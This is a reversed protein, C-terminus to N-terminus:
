RGLILTCHSSLIGGNGHVLAIGPSNPVQREKGENRLQTVAETVHLIGGNACSLMGGNTNAPLDGNISLYGREALLGAEGKECFGLDELEMLVAITFCDYLQVLDVDERSIGAMSFATNGSDVAGTYMLNESNMINEFTHGEGMGLIYIPPKKYDNAKEKSTLLLAGGFDSVICCDLLHLPTSIMKSNLVDDVNIPKRMLADPNKLAHERFTVAVSALQEQTAGFEHMYREAVLGYQTPITPGYPVEFQESGGSKALKSIFDGRMSGSSRNDAWVILVNDCQGSAIALAGHKVLVCGTAGLASIMGSYKPQIGLEQSLRSSFDLEPEVLSYGTLVGDIEAKDIGSDQIAKQASEVALHIARRGPRRERKAEGYGVIAVQESIKM